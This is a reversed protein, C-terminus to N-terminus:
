SNVRRGLLLWTRRRSWPAQADPGLTCTRGSSRGSSARGGPVAQSLDTTHGEGPESIYDCTNGAARYAACTEFAYAGTNSAVDTEYHFMQIPALGDGFHLVGARIAPTLYAGDSIAAAIKSSIGALPGSTPVQLDPVGAMGLAVAGGASNGNAAIRTLEFGYTAANAKVWRM